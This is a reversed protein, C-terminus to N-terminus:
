ILLNSIFDNYKQPKGEIENVINVWDKEAVKILNNVEPVQMLIKRAYPSLPYWIGKNGFYQEFNKSCKKLYCSRFDPDLSGGFDSEEVVVIFKKAKINPLYKQHEQLVSHHRVILLDCTVEQGYVLLHVAQGDIISMLEENWPTSTDMDFSFLPFLGIQLGLAKQAKIEEITSSIKEGIKRFEISHVVNLPNNVFNIDPKSSTEMPSSIPFPRKPQQFDMFPDKTKKHWLSFAEAYAKRAGMFFGSYGFHKKGTLSSYDHRVITVPGTELEKIRRQGFVKKLRKIYETDGAFRVSDWFGAKKVVEQHRFMLSSYNKSFYSGPGGRRVFVMNSQSRILQSTNAIVRSNRLLHEAQLEIKRPHSWDDADHCTIFEGRAQSLGLNRAVYPGRNEPNLLYRIRSDKDMLSEVVQRTKDTSADDVVIIEMNNWTQSLLSSLAISIFGQANYAPMIVTVLPGDKYIRPLCDPVFINDLGLDKEPNKKCLKELDYNSLVFNIMSLRQEEREKKTITFDKAYLNALALYHDDQRFKDVAPQIHDFAEKIRDLRELCESKLVLARNIRKRNTESELIFDLHALANHANQRTFGNLYHLSLEWSAILRESQNESNSAINELEEVAREVFGLRLLESLRLVRNQDILLSKARRALVGLFGNSHFIGPGFRNLYAERLPSEFRTLFPNLCQRIIRKFVKRTSIQVV